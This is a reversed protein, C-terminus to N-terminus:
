NKTDASDTHLDMGLDGTRGWMIHPSTAHHGAERVTYLQGHGDTPNQAVECEHTNDHIVMYWASRTGDSLRLNRLNDWVLPWDIAPQLQM